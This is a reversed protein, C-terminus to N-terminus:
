SNPRYSVDCLRESPDAWCMPRSHQLRMENAAKFALQIRNKDVAEVIGLGLEPETKSVWRQGIKFNTM